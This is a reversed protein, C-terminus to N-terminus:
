LTTTRHDFFYCLFGKVADCFRVADREAPKTDCM